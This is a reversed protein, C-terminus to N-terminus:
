KILVVKRSADLQGPVTARIFYVGSALSKGQVTFQHVGASVQGDALRMVERGLVDFVAVWLEGPEPLTVSVRASANFPNPYVPALTYAQIIEATSGVDLFEGGTNEWWSTGRGHAGLIDINGDDNIDIYRWDEMGWTNLLTTPAFETGLGNMNEGLVTSNGYHLIFDLDDDGDWDILDIGFPDPVNDHVTHADWSTGLGDLNEWWRIERGSHAISIVDNDGDGDIDGCDVDWPQYFDGEIRHAQWQTASGNLNEFWSVILPRTGCLVIDLDGDGDLDSFDAAHVTPSYPLTTAQFQNWNQGTGFTNLWMMVEIGYQAYIDPHGDLDIDEVLLESFSNYPLDSALEHEVWQTGGQQNEWWVIRSDYRSFAALDPDDDGDFDGARVDYARGFENAIQRAVLVSGDNYLDEWWVIQYEGGSGCIDLDGDGDFDAAEVVEPNYNEGAIFINYWLDPNGTDKWWSFPASADESAEAIDLDGDGDIDGLDFGFSFTRDSLNSWTWATGTGDNLVLYLGPDVNYSGGLGSFFFDLDGDNDYDLVRYESPLPFLSIPDFTPFSGTGDNFWVVISGQDDYWDGQMTLVDQNGDGNVDMSLISMGDIDGLRNIEEEQWSTGSGNLNRYWFFGSDQSDRNSALVDMDGDGDMDSVDADTVRNYDIDIVHQVFDQSQNMRNELWSLSENSYDNGQLLFIDRDGDGDMDALIAETKELATADILHETWQQGSGDNEYWFVGESNSLVILDDDGDGDLDMTQLDMPSILQEVITHQVWASGDGAYNEFWLVAHTPYGVIGAADLDGDGDFDALRVAHNEEMWTNLQYETLPQAFLVVPLLVALVILRISM